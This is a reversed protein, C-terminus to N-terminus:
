GKNPAVVHKPLNRSALRVDREQISAQIARAAPLKEAAPTNLVAMAELVMQRFPMWDAQPSIAEVPTGIPELSQPVDGHDSKGPPGGPPNVIISIPGGASGNGNSGLTAGTKGPQGSVHSGGKGSGAWTGLPMLGISLIAMLAIHVSRSPHLKDINTSAKKM